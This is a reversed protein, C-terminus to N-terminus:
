SQEPFYFFVVRINLINIYLLVFPVFPVSNKKTFFDVFLLNDSVRLKNKLLYCITIKGNWNDWFLRVSLIRLRIRGSNLMIEKDTNGM